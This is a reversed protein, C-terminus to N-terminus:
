KKWDQKLKRKFQRKGNELLINHVAVGDHLNYLLLSTANVIQRIEKISYRDKTIEKVRFCIDTVTKPKDM